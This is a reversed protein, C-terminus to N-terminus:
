PAAPEGRREGDHRAARPGGRLAVGLAVRERAAGARRDRRRPTAAGLHDARRRPERAVGRLPGGGRAGARAGRRGGGPARQPQTGGGDAPRGHRLPRHGPLRAREARHRAARRPRDDRAAAGNTVGGRVRAGRAGPDPAARRHLQGRHRRTGARGAPRRVRDRARRLAPGARARPRLPPEGRVAGGRRPRAARAGHARRERGRRDGAGAARDPRRPLRGGAERGGLVRVRELAVRRDRHARAQRHRPRRPVAPKHGARDRGGRAGERVLAEGPGPGRGRGRDHLRPRQHGRLPARRRRQRAALLDRRAARDPAPGGAALASRAGRERGRGPGGHRPVARDPQLHLDGRGRAGGRAGRAGRARAGRTRGLLALRERLPLPATKHNAGLTLLEGTM